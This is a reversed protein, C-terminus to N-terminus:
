EVAKVEQAELLPIIGVPIMLGVLEVVEEIYFFLYFVVVIFSNSFLCFTDFFTLDQV